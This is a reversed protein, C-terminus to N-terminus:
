SRSGEFAENANSGLNSITMNTWAKIPTFLEHNGLEAFLSDEARFSSMGTLVDLRFDRRQFKGKGVYGWEAFTLPQGTATQMTLANGHVINQRLVYSAARGLDDDRSLKLHDTYLDLLRKRCLLVNDSLLEIGYTCMLSLLSFHRREFDNKKFKRDVISLKHKLIRQLFNGDGCAPELFRSDIRTAEESVLNIMDDVLWDPTFVEGHDEVRKKSKILSM